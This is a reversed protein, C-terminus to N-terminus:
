PNLKIANNAYVSANRFNVTKNNINWYNDNYFMLSYFSTNSPSLAKLEEKDLNIITDTSNLYKTIYNVGGNSLFFRILSCNKIKGIRFSAEKSLSISDPQKVYTYEPYPKDNVFSFSDIKSGGTIKWKLSTYFKATTDLYNFKQTGNKNKFKITNLSIDGVDILYIPNYVENFISQSSFYAYQQMGTLSYTGSVKIYNKASYFLGVYKSFINEPLKTETIEEKVPPVTKKCSIGLTLILLIVFLQKM